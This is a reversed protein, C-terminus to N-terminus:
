LQRAEPSSARASTVNDRVTLWPFLAAEQFVVARDPGPARRGATSAPSGATPKEFGAIINLM